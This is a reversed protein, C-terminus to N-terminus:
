IVTGIGSLWQRLVAMWVDWVGSVLLVGVLSMTLGSAVQLGRAHRRVWGLRGAVHTFAVAALVFPLGLGLSYFVALIGGRVASGETLALSLVVALAPGICPTWGLGFVIGLLPATVLGARPAIGLRVTRQGFRLVGAFVLGLVITVMGVVISIPRQYRLLVEGAAGVLVGTTLFVATFGGVFLLSGALMRMRAGPALREATVQAAGLGTAFSLYGPLLPVVCPSAFSVLGALIAVPVAVIMSGSMAQRVWDALDLPTM